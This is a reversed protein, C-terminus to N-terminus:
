PATAPSGGGAAPTDMRPCRRRVACTDALADVLEGGALDNARPVTSM